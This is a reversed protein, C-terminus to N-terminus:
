LYPVGPVSTGNDYPSSRVLLRMRGVDLAFLILSLSASVWFVIRTIDALETCQVELEPQTSPSDPPCLADLALVGPGTLGSFFNNAIGSALLFRFAHAVTLACWFALSHAVRRHRTFFTIALTLPIVNWSFALVFVFFIYGAILSFRGVVYDVEWAVLHDVEGARMTHAVFIALISVIPAAWLLGAWACFIERLPDAQWRRQRAGPRETSTDVVHTM